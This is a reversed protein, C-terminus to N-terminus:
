FNTVKGDAPRAEIADVIETRVFPVEFAHDVRQHRSGAYECQESDPQRKAQRPQQDALDRSERALDLCQPM